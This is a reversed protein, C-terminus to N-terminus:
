APIEDMGTATSHLHDLIQFVQRESIYQQQQFPSVTIKVLPTSYLPDTSISAYHENLTTTTATMSVLDRM